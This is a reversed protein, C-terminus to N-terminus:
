AAAAKRGPLRQQAPGGAGIQRAAEQGAPVLAGNRLALVRDAARVLAPRHTTFVVAVGERRLRDLLAIVQAEGAADLAGALEDLVLLRPRGYLARAIALRQQQGMSLQGMGGLPTAYGLPLRAIAEHLGARRAAELVQAMDPTGLRAIVEAVTGQALMPQQPLFGVYRALDERDWQHIAHGDLYAGGAAPPYLGILLRLLTSKGCGSPGVIAIVQAPEVTLDINRLLVPQVGRFTFTLHEVVLRGHPCPFALGRTQSPTDALLKRLRQWAAMAEAVERSTGAFSAFPGAIALTLFFFGPGISIGAMGSLVLAGMLFLFSGGFLALLADLLLGLRNARRRALFAEGGAEAETRLLQGALRPLMGMALVAEGARMADAAMGQAEAAQGTALEMERRQARILALSLAGAAGYFGMALLGFSWHVAFSLLILLPLTIIQVLARGALGAIGRRVTELDNLATSALVDPRGPRQAVGLAAAVGLRQAAFRALQRLGAGQQLGLVVTIVLLLGWLCAITAATEGSRTRPVSALLTWNAYALAFGLAAGFMGLMGLFWGLRRATAGVSAMAEALTSRLGIEVPARAM